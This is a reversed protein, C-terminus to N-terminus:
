THGAAALDHIQGLYQAYTPSGSPAYNLNRYLGTLRTFYDRAATKDAFTYSRNVLTCVLELSEKQRELPVSADVADFADQQLYVMDV